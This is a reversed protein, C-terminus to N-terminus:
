RGMGKEILQLGYWIGAIGGATTCIAFVLCDGRTSIGTKSRKTWIFVKWATGGVSLGLVAGVFGMLLVALGM